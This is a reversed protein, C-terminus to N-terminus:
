KRDQGTIVTLKRGTDGQVLTDPTVVVTAGPELVSALSRRFADPVSLKAKEEPTVDRDSGAEGPLPLRMWQSTGGVRSRLSFAKPSTVPEAMSVPASGIIIGNRLVLMRRDAGSIIISIPGVPAREPNWVTGASDSPAEPSIALVNPTPAVRPVAASSTIVVTMGLRSVGYLNKAFALPLRICGHSAPYGPLNGAHMAVGTWTLRQMFPMPADDYLNSKHDVHKQLITFIGTPTAHGPKGTSATSVGILIGNRYVYARQTELSVIVLVPGAPAVEPAWLFEGPKLSQVRDAISGDGIPAQAPARAAAGSFMITAAMAVFARRCVTGRDAIRLGSSPIKM